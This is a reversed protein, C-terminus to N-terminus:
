SVGARAGVSFYGGEIVAGEEVVLSLARCSGKWRSYPGLRVTGGCRADSEITGDVVMGATAVLQRGLYRAAREIFVGGVVRIAAACVGTSLRVDGIALPM